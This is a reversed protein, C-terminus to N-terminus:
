SLDNGAIYEVLEVIRQTILLLLTTLGIFFSSIPHSNVNILSRIKM